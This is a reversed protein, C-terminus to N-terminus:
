RMAILKTIGRAMMMPKIEPSQLLAPTALFKRRYQLNSPLAKTLVSVKANQESVRNKVWGVSRNKNQYLSLLPQYYGLHAPSISNCTIKFIIRM